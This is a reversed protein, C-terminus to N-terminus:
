PPENKANEKKYVILIKNDKAVKTTFIEEDLFIFGFESLIEKLIQSQECNSGAVVNKVRIVLSGGSMKGVLKLPYNKYDLTDPIGIIM